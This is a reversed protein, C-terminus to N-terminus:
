NAAVLAAMADSEAVSDRMSNYSEADGECVHNPSNAQVEKRNLFGWAGGGRRKRLRLEFRQMEVDISCGAGLGLGQFHCLGRAFLLLGVLFGECRRDDKLRRTKLRVNTERHEINFKM